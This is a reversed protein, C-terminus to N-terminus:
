TWIGFLDVVMDTPESAQVCGYGRGPVLLASSATTDDAPFNANSTGPAGTTLCPYATLYGAASTLTATLNVQAAVVSGLPVVDAVTGQHFRHGDVRTDLLRQPALATYRAGSGARYEAVVDVLLDTAEWTYLCVSGAAGVRVNALNPRTIGAEPNLNSVLPMPTGCPWATVFGTAAPDVATVVLAVAATASGTATVAVQLVQGPVLRGSGGLGSRTDVLRRAPVPVLGAPAATTLWGNLDVILDVAAMSTVCVRGDGVPVTAANTVAQGARPNVNSTPPETADCPYARVWGFEAASSTTTLNLAVATTGAPMRDRLDLVLPVGPQLRAYPQGPQRTDVLRVPDVAQFGAVGPPTPFAPPSAASGFAALPLAVSYFTPRYLWANARWRWYDGGNSLAIVLSGNPAQWPMLSAGYTGCGTPCKRDPFVNITRITHWPGEPASAQDIVLSTGWWEDVKSVNVFTDGFWQVSMPNAAGRSLMPQAEGASPSWGSGTWYEPARDLRGVPVRALYTDPMCAADFQSPGTPANVFQRYCHSYLYSYRDTSVVSWGYLRASSDGPAPEFSLEQLTTADLTALWTSVPAAGPGAGTGSPNRMEVMFIRLLGDAGVEGDLPWFWRESDRTLADGIFDRGRSGQVTWCAGDQILAGNHVAETAGLVEDNSFHMDQFMWLVRGDPLPYAHPYDGGGLGEQAGTAGLGPSAFAADLRSEGWTGGGCVNVAAATPVHPSVVVLSSTVLAILLLAAPVLRSRHM